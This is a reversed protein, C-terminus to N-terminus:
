SHSGVGGWQRAAEASAAGIGYSGGAFLEIMSRDIHVVPPPGVSISPTTASTRHSLARVSQSMLVCHQSLRSSRRQDALAAARPAPDRVAHATRPNDGFRWVGRPNRAPRRLSPDRRASRPRRARGLCLGLRTPDYSSPTVLSVEAAPTTTGPPTPQPWGARPALSRNSVAWGDTPSALRDSGRPYHQNSGPPLLPYALPAPPRLTLERCRRLM